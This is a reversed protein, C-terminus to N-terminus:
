QENRRFFENLDFRVTKGEFNKMKTNEKANRIGDEKIKSDKAMTLIPSCSKQVDIPGEADELDKIASKKARGM